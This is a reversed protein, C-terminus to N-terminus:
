AAATKAMTKCGPLVISGAGSIRVPMLVAKVARAGGVGYAFLRPYSSSDTDLLVFEIAGCGLRFMGEVVRVLLEPDFYAGGVNIFFRRLGEERGHFARSMKAAASIVAFAGGGNELRAVVEEKCPAGEGYGLEGLIGPAIKLIYQYREETLAEPRVFGYDLGEDEATRGRGIMLRGDTCFVMNEAVGYIEPSATDDRGLGDVAAAMVRGVARPDGADIKRVTRRKLAGDDLVVPCNIGHDLRKMLRAAEVLDKEAACVRLTSESKYVERVIALAKDSVGMEKARFEMVGEYAQNLSEIGTEKM